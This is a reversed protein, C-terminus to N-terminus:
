KIVCQERAKGKGRKRVKQKDVRKGKHEESWIVVHLYVIHLGSITSSPQVSALTHSSGVWFM